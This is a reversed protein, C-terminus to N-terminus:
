FEVELVEGCWAPLQLPWSAPCPEDEVVAGRCDEPM